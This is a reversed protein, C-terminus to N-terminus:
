GNKEEKFILDLKKNIEKICTTAILSWEAVEKANNEKMTAMSMHM